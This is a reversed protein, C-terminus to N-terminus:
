KIKLKSLFYLFKCTIRRSELYRHMAIVDTAPPMKKKFLKVMKHLFPSNCLMRSVILSRSPLEVKFFYSNAEFFVSEGEFDYPFFVHGLEKIYTRSSTNPSPKFRNLVFIDMDLKQGPRLNYGASIDFNFRGLLKAKILSCVALYFHISRSIQCLEVDPAYALSTKSFLVSAPAFAEEIRFCTEPLNCNWNELIQSFALFHGRRIPKFNLTTYSLTKGVDNLHKVYSGSYAFLNERGKLERLLKAIHKKHMASFGDLLMFYDGCLFAKAAVFADGRFDSTKVVFDHDLSVDDKIAAYVDNPAAIIPHLNRYDQKSLEASINTWDEVTDVFCIVDVVVKQYIVDINEMKKQKIFMLLEGVMVDLDFHELFVQHSRQAMEYAEDPHSNIWILIEKIKEIQREEPQMIDIYFVSNSFYRRTYPNDDSIIVAGACSAEYIRNSVTHAANHMPSSLALCIGSTSIRDIISYGDFPIEGHYCNFGNWGGRRGFINNPGYIDISVTDNLYRILAGYRMPGAFAKEANLGVYFLKRQGRMFKKPAIAFDKSISSCIPLLKERTMNNCVLDRVADVSEYGGVACDYKKMYKFYLDAGYFDLFGSPSWHFFCALTDPLVDAVGLGIDHGYVFDLGLNDAHIDPNDVVRMKHDLVYLEAGHKRFSYRLRMLTELEASKAGDFTDVFGIKM